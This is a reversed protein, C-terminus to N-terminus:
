IQEKLPEQKSDSARFLLALVLAFIFGLLLSIFIPAIANRFSFSSLAFEKDQEIIEIQQDIEDESAGKGEMDVIKLNMLNHYSEELVIKDMTKQYITIGLSSVIISSALLIYISKLAHSFTWARGNKRKLLYVLFVPVLISGVIKLVTSVMYLGSYSEASRTYYIAVISLVVSIVGAIAGYILGDKKENRSLETSM